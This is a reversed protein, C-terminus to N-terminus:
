WGTPVIAYWLRVRLKADAAANGAYEGAGNNFLELGLNESNAKTILKDQAVTAQIAQDAAGDIFGTAETTAIVGSTKGVYRIDLNAASETLVNAGADLIILAKHMVLMLGAGPAAVLLKPTARLAKIEANTLAIEVARMVKAHPGYKFDADWQNM